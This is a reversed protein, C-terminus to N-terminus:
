DSTYKSVIAEHQGSKIIQTFGKDIAATYAANHCVTKFKAPKFIKKFAVNKLTDAVTPKVNNLSNKKNKVLRLTQGKFMNIDLVAIEAESRQAYVM